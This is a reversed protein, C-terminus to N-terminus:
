ADLSQCGPAAFGKWNEFSHGWSSKVADRSRVPLIVKVKASM